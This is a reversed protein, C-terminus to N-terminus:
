RAWIEVRTYIETGINAAHGFGFTNVTTTVQHEIRYTNSASISVAHVGDSWHTGNITNPSFASRGTIVSATGTVDFLRSQHGNVQAAPASFKIVYEGPALTFENSLLTTGIINYAFTNLDRTRWAGSTADGGATNQAKQDEIVAALYYPGTVIWSEILSSSRVHFGVVTVASATQDINVKTQFISNWTVARGGTGDQIFTFTGRTGVRLNTPSNITADGTLTIQYDTGGPYEFSPTISTAYTVTVIGSTFNFAEGISYNAADSRTVISDGPELLFSTQEDINQGGTATVTVTNATGSNKILFDGGDAATVASLLSITFSGGTADCNIQKGLDGVLTTYNATKNIVSRSPSVTGTLFASTDLAGRVNDWTTYNSLTADASDKFTVKYATTGVYRVPVVGSDNTVIPNDEPVSLGSDSYVTQQNTTGADFVELKAGNVPDGNADVIVRGSLPFLVSDVM